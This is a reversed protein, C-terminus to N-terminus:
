HKHKTLEEIFEKLLSIIVQKEEIIKEYKEIIKYSVENQEQINKKGINDILQEGDYLESVKIGLIYAIKEIEIASFPIDGKERRSYQSQNLKLEFAIYDQSIKRNERINKVTKYIEM